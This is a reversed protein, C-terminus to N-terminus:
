FAESIIEAAEACQESFSNLFKDASESMNVLYDAEMLMQLLIDEDAKKITHHNGVLWTIKETMENSLGIKETFEPVLLAGEAEQFPGKGSGHKKIANPIGIDHLVAACQLTLLDDGALGEGSGIAYAYAYVKLAHEVYHLDGFYDIMMSILKPVQM